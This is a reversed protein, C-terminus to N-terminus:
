PELESDWYAKDIFQQWSVRRQTGLVIEMRGKWGPKTPAIMLKMGAEQPTRGGKSNNCNLCCCVLNDWTSKGGQRRPVVHDINLDRKQFKNGCYACKHKDREFINRRTLRVDGPPLKDFKTLVIVEPLVIKFKETYIFRGEKVKSLGVWDEFNYTTFNDVDVVRAHDQYILSLARKWDVVHVAVWGRNLCLADNM